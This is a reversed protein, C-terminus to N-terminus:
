CPGSELARVVARLLTGDFGPRVEITAGGVRVTMGGPPSEPVVAMWGGGVNPTAAPTSMEALRRRWYHFQHEPIGHESCWAKVTKGEQTFSELRSQWEEQLASRVM